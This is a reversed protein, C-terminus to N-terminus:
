PCDHPCRAFRCPDNAIPVIESPPLSEVMTASLKRIHEGIKKPLGLNTKCHPCREPLERRLLMVIQKVFHQVVGPDFGHIVRQVEHWRRRVKAWFIACRSADPGSGSAMKFLNKMIVADAKVGGRRLETVFHTNLTREGINLVIAIEDQRMGFGALDEVEKRQAKTAVFPPTGRKKGKKKKAKSIARTKTKKKKKKKPKKM